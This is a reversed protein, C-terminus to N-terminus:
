LSASPSGSMLNKISYTLYDGFGNIVEAQAASDLIVEGDPLIQETM